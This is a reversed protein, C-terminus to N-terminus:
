FSEWNEFNIISSTKSGWKRFRGTVRSIALQNVPLLSKWGSHRWHLTMILWPIVWTLLYYFHRWILYLWNSSYCLIKLPRWWSWVLRYQGYGTTIYPRRPSKSGHRSGWRFHGVPWFTHNITLIRCFHWDKVVRFELVVLGIKLFQIDASLYYGSSHRRLQKLDTCYVM